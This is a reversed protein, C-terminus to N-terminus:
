ELFSFNLALKRKTELVWKLPWLDIDNAFNLAM